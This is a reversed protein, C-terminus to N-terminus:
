FEFGYKVAEDSVGGVQLAEKEVTGNETPVSWCIVCDREVTADRTAM